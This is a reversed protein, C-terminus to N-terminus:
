RAYEGGCDSDEGPGLELTALLAAPPAISGLALAIAGRLGLRALDPRFSPDSFTGGIVLPSRLSLLSRDKPRPRLLLDLREGDLDISGEGIILTDTTDFALANASMVGDNVAFDAFACRIPIRRDRTVLFALAEAIDIGALEVLLASIEGKGMGVAVEGSSSGLMAAISNGTGALKAHGGIRGVADSALASDPFLGGLNLGRVDADLTTRIPTERADMRVTSRIDGDAVGFNLPDLRLLGNELFLHADMDDLPLDAEIRQARLRVDADMANLKDLEYPTDPIVGSGSAEAQQEPSPTEGAGTEPAAGLFGALDDLDLLKSVLEAKFFNREGGTEVTVTGALDSDGVKGSFDRYHWTTGERRLQGDVSYPPTPPMALGLLPYLHELNQGALAMEFGFNEFQFADVLSGRAHARTAGARAHLDFRYPAATDQLDLPSQATGELEFEASRWRGEGTIAVPPAADGEGPAQSAVRVDVETEGEPDLFLLSGDDIWLRQLQVPSGGGGDGAFASWNGERDPGIELRVQPRQLRIEPIRVQGRLLPWLEISLELRDAAAMRAEDSWDANGLELADARITTVRGPDVDLDGGITFDRGTRAEVAREVPGKFWNWDWLLFLVLLGVAAVAFAARWPHDAITDFRRRSRPSNSVPAEPM